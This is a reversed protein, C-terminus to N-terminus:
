IECFPHDYKAVSPGRHDNHLFCQELSPFHSPNSTFLCHNNHLQGRDVTRRWTHDNLNFLMDQLPRVGGTSMCVRSVGNGEGSRQRALLHM